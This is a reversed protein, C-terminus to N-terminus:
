LLIIITLEFLKNLFFDPSFALSMAVLHKTAIIINFMMMADRAMKIGSLLKVNTFSYAVKARKRRGARSVIPFRLYISCYLVGTLIREHVLITPLTRATRQPIIKIQVPPLTDAILVM